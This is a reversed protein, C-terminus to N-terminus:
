EFWIRQSASWYQVDVFFDVIVLEFLLNCFITKLNGAIESDIIFRQLDINEWSYSTLLWAALVFLKDNYDDCCAAAVNNKPHTPTKESLM